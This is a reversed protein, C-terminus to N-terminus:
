WTCHPNGLSINFSVMYLLPVASIKNYMLKVIERPSGRQVYTKSDRSSGRQVDKIIKTMIIEHM